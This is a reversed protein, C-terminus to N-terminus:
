GRAPSPVEGDTTERETWVPLAGAEFAWRRYALVVLIVLGLYFVVYLAVAWSPWGGLHFFLIGATGPMNGAAHVTIPVYLNQTFEYLLGFGLGNVFLLLLYGSSTMGNPAGDTLVRPVHYASFLASAVVLGVAVRVRPDGRWLAVVRNQLYGRFVVEEVIGAVVFMFAFVFVAEAPPVTWQYGVTEPNGSAIAITIAAANLFLFYGGIITAGPVLLTPALGIRALSVGELRLTGVALGLLALSLVISGVHVDVVPIAPGLEWVYNAYRDAVVLIAGLVLFALFTWAGGDFSVERADGGRTNSDTRLM